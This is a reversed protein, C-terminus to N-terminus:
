LVVVRVGCVERTHRARRAHLPCPHLHLDCSLFRADVYMYADPMATVQFIRVDTLFTVDENGWILSVGVCM